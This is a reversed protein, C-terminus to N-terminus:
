LGFKSDPIGDVCVPFVKCYSQLYALYCIFISYLAFACFVFALNCSSIINFNTTPQPQVTDPVHVLVIADSAAPAFASSSDEVDM